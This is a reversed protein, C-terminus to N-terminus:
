RECVWYRRQGALLKELTGYVSHFIFPRVAQHLLAGLMVDSVDHPQNFYLGHGALGEGDGLVVLRDLVGESALGGSVPQLAAHGYGGGKLGALAQGQPGVPVVEVATVPRLPHQHILHNGARGLKLSPM